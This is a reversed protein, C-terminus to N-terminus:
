IMCKRGKIRGSFKVTSRNSSYGRGKLGRVWGIERGNRSAEGWPGKEAVGCLLGGKGEKRHPLITMSTKKRVGRAEKGYGAQHLEWGGHGRAKRVGKGERVLDEV